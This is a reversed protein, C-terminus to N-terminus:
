SNNIKTLFAPAVALIVLPPEIKIKYMIRLKYM